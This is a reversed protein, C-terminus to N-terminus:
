LTLRVKALELLFLRRIADYGRENPDELNEFYWYHPDNSRYNRTWFQRCHIGHGLFAKHIDILHVTANGKSSRAIVSNYEKLIALADKWKPLGAREIDAEGDTPDYINCIFITCGGQFNTQIRTLAANLRAEFEAIWPRAQELTAGYMAEARPPTRGYNHILDNGGTTILVIAKTNTDAKPLRSLQSQLMEHSTSGSIALNTVSLNPIVTRLCIGKVDEPDSSPNHAVRDFYGYGRRAGFGATVSDGLGVLLVPRSTWPQSFDSRSVSPGAPGSGIPRSYWFYYYGFSSGLIGLVIVGICSWILLRKSDRNSGARPSIDEGSLSLILADHFLLALV